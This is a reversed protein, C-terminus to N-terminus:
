KIKPNIILNRQMEGMLTEKMDSIQLLQMIGLFTIPPRRELYRNQLIQLILNILRKISNSKVAKRASEVLEPGILDPNSSQAM